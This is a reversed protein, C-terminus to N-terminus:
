TYIQSGVTLPGLGGGTGDDPVTITAADSVNPSTFRATDITLLETVTCEISLADYTPAAAGSKGLMPIALRVPRWQGIELSMAGSRLLMSSGLTAALADPDGDDMWSPDREREVLVMLARAIGNVISSRLVGKAQVAAPMVWFLRCVSGQTLWDEAIWAPASVSERFMYLAPLDNDNFGGTRPDNDLTMKVPDAMPRDKFVARWATPANANLTAKFCSLLKSLLPDGVAEDTAVPAVLPIPLVGFLDSM